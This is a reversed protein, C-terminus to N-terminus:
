CSATSGIFRRVIKNSEPFLSCHICHINIDPSVFFRDAKEGRKGSWVKAEDEQHTKYRSKGRKDQYCGEGSALKEFLTKIKRNSSFGLTNLFMKQCVTILVNAEDPLSYSLRIREKRQKSDDHKRKRIRKKETERICSMIWANQETYRKKWFADHIFVRRSESLFDACKFHKCFCPSLIPHKLKMNTKRTDSPGRNTDTYMHKKDEKADGTAKNRYSNDVHEHKRSFNDPASVMNSEARKPYTAVYQHSKESHFIHHYNAHKDTYSQQRLVGILSSTCSKLEMKKLKKGQIDSSVNNM